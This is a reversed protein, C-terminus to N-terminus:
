NGLKKVRVEFGVCQRFLSKSFKLPAEKDVLEIDYKRYFMALTAKLLLRALNRGPCMRMGSGFTYVEKKYDPHLEDMFRDPDFLEPNTWKSKHKNVAHVYIFFDTSETFTYGGIQDPKENRLGAASIEMFISAIEEDSMPRNNAGDAIGKTIDRPTNVTLFMTLLDRTLPEDEPTREIEERRSKVDNLLRKRLWNHQHKLKKTYSNIGPFNRIFRPINHFWIIVDVFESACKSAYEKEKMKDSIEIEKNPSIKNYYSTLTDLSKSTTLLETTDSFYNRAWCSFDLATNEGLKMWYNEMKQFAIQTSALAQKMFASSFIAKSYVRRIFAWNEYDLNFLLGTNILGVEGLGSDKGAHNHFNSHIAPSFIKLALEESCLWVKRTSGIYVEFIDGYKSQLESPWISIDRFFILTNGIIPLPFPGPLPSERTFYKYYYHSVYATLFLIIASLVNNYTFLSM